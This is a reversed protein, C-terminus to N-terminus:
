EGYIDLQFESIIKFYEELIIEFNSVLLSTRIAELFEIERGTLIKFWGGGNIFARDINPKSALNRAQRWKWSPEITNPGVYNEITDIAYLFENLISKLQSPSRLEPLDTNLITKKKAKHDSPFGLLIRRIWEVPKKTSDSAM